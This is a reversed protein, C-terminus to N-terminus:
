GFFLCSDCRRAEPRNALPLAAEYRGTQQSVRQCNWHRGPPGPRILSTAAPRCPWPTPRSRRRGTRGSRWSARGARPHSRRVEEEMRAPGRLARGAPHQAMGIGALGGRRGPHGAGPGGAPPRPRPVTMRRRFPHLVRDAEDATHLYYDLLRGVAQRQEPGPDEHAARMAAYGRILDHFRFQGAPARALLHHDLLAALAEEAEALTGGGLAAAAQLSIDACPSVGLRRFFRQHDPELSRYALDFAADGGPQGRRRRRAPPPNRCSRSWTASGPPYDQALRGATLQIALPLRGCLDVAMAVQEEDHARGRGAVRQFLTIADDVSLVDLTLARAGELDPLTRRTTILILCQGTVPLLPRIQDHRAADDLIVIARRRSLQARLLAAREGVTDPIQTAPVTLM